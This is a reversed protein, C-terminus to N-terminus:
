TIRYCVSHFCENTRSRIRGRNGLVVQNHTVLSLLGLLQGEKDIDASYLYITVM